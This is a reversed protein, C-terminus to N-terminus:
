EGTKGLLQRKTADPLPAQDIWARAAKEDSGLWRLAVTEMAKLRLQEDPISQVYSITKHGDALTWAVKRYSEARRSFIDQFIQNFERFLLGGPHFCL